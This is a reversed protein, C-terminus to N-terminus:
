QHDIVQGNTPPPSADWNKKFFNKIKERVLIKNAMRLIYIYIPIDKWCEKFYVHGYEKEAFIKKDFTKKKHSNLQKQVLRGHCKVSTCHLPM